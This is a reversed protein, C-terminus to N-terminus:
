KGGKDAQLGQPFLRHRVSYSSKELVIQRGIRSEFNIVLPALLNATMEDPKEPIRVINFISPKNEKNFGLEEAVTDDLHFSYDPFFAFPDTIIFALDPDSSSQLFSFPSDQEYPIFALKQENPFGPIAHPFNILQEEAIDLEGFRTSKIKMTIGGIAFIM